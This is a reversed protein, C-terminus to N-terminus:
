ETDTDETDSPDNQQSAAQYQEKTPLSMLKARYSVYDSHLDDYEAYSKCAEVAQLAKQILDSMNSPQYKHGTMRKLRTRALAIRTKKTQEERAQEAKASSEEALRQNEESQQEQYAKVVDKWKVSDDKLSDYKDKCRTSYDKRVDDDQISAIMNKLSNYTETFTYYDAMSTITLKEFKELKKLAREQKSQDTENDVYETTDELIDRAFYDM